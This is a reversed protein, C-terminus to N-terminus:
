GATLREFFWWVGIASIAFAAPLTFVRRLLAERGASALLAQVSMALSVTVLVVAIQGIEVGINFGVLATVFQGPPLGLTGFFGAFGMGHILGFIFVLLPRWRPPERFVLTELGVLAITAAILPEVLSAPPAIVGAAALGLTVTHAVTFASVQVVLSRLRRTSLALAVVFLIHDAGAPLIHQVGIVLYLWLTQPWPRDLDIEAARAPLGGPLEARDLEQLARCLAPDMGGGPTCFEDDPHASAPGAFVLVILSLVLGFGLWARAPKM